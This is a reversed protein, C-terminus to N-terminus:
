LSRNHKKEVMAAVVMVKSTSCFPFREKQRYQIEAHNATNIASVGLRGGSAAELEKLTNAALVPANFLAFFIALRILSSYATKLFLKNKM